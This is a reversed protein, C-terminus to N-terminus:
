GQLDKLSQALSQCAKQIVDRKPKSPAKVRAGESLGLSVACVSMGVIGVEGAKDLPFFIAKKTICSLFRRTQM